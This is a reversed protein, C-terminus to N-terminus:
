LQAPTFANRVRRVQRQYSGRLSYRLPKYANGSSIACLNTLLTISSQGISGFVHLQLMPM